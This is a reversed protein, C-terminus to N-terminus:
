AIEVKGGIAQGPIGTNFRARVAGNNGHAASIKGSLLRGRPNKWQVKKGVLTQAKRKSDIGKVLVIAQNGRMTKRGRRYNVITGQM